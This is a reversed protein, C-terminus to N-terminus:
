DYGPKEQRQASTIRMLADILRWVGSKDTVPGVPQVM